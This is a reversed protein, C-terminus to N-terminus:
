HKGDKVINIGEWVLECIEAYSESKLLKKNASDDLGNNLLNSLGTKGASQVYQWLRDFATNPTETTGEPLKKIEKQLISFYPCQSVTCMGNRQKCVVLQLITLVPLNQLRTCSSVALWRVEM